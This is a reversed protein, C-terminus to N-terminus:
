PSPTYNITTYPDGYFCYAAYTDYGDLSPNNYAAARIGRVVDALSHTPHNKVEQYFKVAVEHAIKDDVPWLPAVVGSAGLDIFSNAFGGVGSFTLVPQGAMCANIFVFPRTANFGLQLGEMGEVM